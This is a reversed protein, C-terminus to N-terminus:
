HFISNGCFVGHGSIGNLIWSTRVYLVLLKVCCHLYLDVRIINQTEVAAPSLPNSGLGSTPRATALVLGSWIALGRRPNPALGSWHM